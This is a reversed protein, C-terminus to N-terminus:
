GETPFRNALFITRDIEDIRTQSWAVRKAIQVIEEHPAEHNVVHTLEDVLGGVRSEYGTRFERLAELIISKEEDTM